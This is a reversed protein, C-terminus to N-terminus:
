GTSTCSDLKGDPEFYSLLTVAGGQSIKGDSQWAPLVRAIRAVEDQSLILEGRCCGTHHIERCEHEVPLESEPLFGWGNLVSNTEIPARAQAVEDDTHKM